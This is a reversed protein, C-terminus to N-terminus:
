PEDAFFYAEAEPAHHLVRDGCRLDAAYEFERGKYKFSHCQYLKDACRQKVGHETGIEACEFADPIRYEM